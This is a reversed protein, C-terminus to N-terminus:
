MTKNVDWTGPPQCQSKQVMLLIKTRFFDSDGSFAWKQWKNETRPFVNPLKRFHTKYPNPSSFFVTTPHSMLIHEKFNLPVGRSVFSTHEKITPQNKAFVILMCITDSQLPASNQSAGRHKHLRVVDLFPHLFNLHHYLQKPGLFHLCGSYFM